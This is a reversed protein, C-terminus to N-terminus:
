SGTVEIKRPRYEPARPLRVRLVGNEYGAEVAKPDIRFPVEITREFKGHVRERRHYHEGEAPEHTKREGWVKLSDGEVSVNIDEPKVGPVEVTVIADESGVWADVPAQQVRALAPLRGAPGENWLENLLDAFSNWAPSVDRDFLSWTM